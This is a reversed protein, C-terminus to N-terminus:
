SEPTDEDDEEDDEDDDEDYSSGYEAERKAQKEAQWAEFDRTEALTKTAENDAAASDLADKAAALAEAAAPETVVEQAKAIHEGARTLREVQESQSLGVVGKLLARAEGTEADSAKRQEYFDEGAAKLAKHATSLHARVAHRGEQVSAFDTM